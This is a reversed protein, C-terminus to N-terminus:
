MPHVYMQRCVRLLAVPGRWQMSALMSPSIELNHAGCHFSNQANSYLYRSAYRTPNEQTSPGSQGIRYFCGTSNHKPIGDEWVCAIYFLRRTNINQEIMLFREDDDEVQQDTLKGPIDFSLRYIKQRLELPLTFFGTCTNQPIQQMSKPNTLARRRPRVPTPINKLRESVKDAEKQAPPIRSRAMFRSKHCMAFCLFIDSLNGLTHNTLHFLIHTKRRAQHSYYNRCAQPVPLLVHLDFHM